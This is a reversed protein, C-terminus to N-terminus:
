AIWPRPALRTSRISPSKRFTTPSGPASSTRRSLERKAPAYPKPQHRLHVLVLELEVLREDASQDFLLKGRPGPQRQDTDLRGARVVRDEPEPVLERDPQRAAVPRESCLVLLVGPQRPKCRPQRDLDRQRDRASLGARAIRPVPRHMAPELSLHRDALRKGRVLERREDVGQLPDIRASCGLRPGTAALRKRQSVARDTVRELADIGGSRALEPVPCRRRRFPLPLAHPQM